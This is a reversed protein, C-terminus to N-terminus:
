GLYLWIISIYFIGGDSYLSLINKNFILRDIDFSYYVNYIYIVLGLVILDIVFIILVELDIRDTDKYNYAKYCFLSIILLKLLWPIHVINNFFIFKVIYYFPIIKIYM